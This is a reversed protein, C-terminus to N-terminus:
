KKDENIRNEAAEQAQDIVADQLNELVTVEKGGVAQAVTDTVWKGGAAVVGVAVASARVAYTKAATIAAGATRVITEGASNGDKISNYAANGGAALSLSVGKHALAATVIEPAALLGGAALPVGVMANFVGNGVANAFAQRERTNGTQMTKMQGSTFPTGSQLRVQVDFPLPPTPIGNRGSPDTNNVPDNATYGYLNMNDEYGIPDTQLFRGLKASYYRARYYYLGTEEDWRRGTYRFPQGGGQGEGMNGYADYTYIDAVTQDASKSMAIISGQHDAHYYRRRLEGGASDYELYILREDVSAGNVYRRLLTGTGTYDEIPEDGEYVYETRGTPNSGTILVSSNSALRRGKPGYEYSVTKDGDTAKVLRNEGDYSYTWVGDGTLSANADYDLVQTSLVEGTSTNLTDVSGYQNLGNATYELSTEALPTHM